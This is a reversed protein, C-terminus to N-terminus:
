LEGNFTGADLKENQKEQREREQQGMHFARDLLENLLQPSMCMSGTFRDTMTSCELKLRELPTM